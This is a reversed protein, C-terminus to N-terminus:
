ARWGRRQHLLRDPRIRGAVVRLQDDLHDGDPKV